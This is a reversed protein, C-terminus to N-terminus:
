RTLEFSANMSTGSLSTSNPNPSGWAACANVLLETLPLYAPKAVVGAVDPTVIKEPSNVASPALAVPLRVPVSSIPPALPGIEPWANLAVYETDEEGIFPLPLTVM